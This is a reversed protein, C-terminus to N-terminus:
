VFSKVADKLVRNMYTQYGIGKKAADTKYARVVWAPVRITVSCTGSVPPLATCSRVPKVRKSSLSATIALFDDLDAEDEPGLQYQSWDVDSLLDDPAELARAMVAIVEPPIEKRRAM